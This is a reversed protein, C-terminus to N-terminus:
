RAGPALAVPLCARFSADSDSTCCDDLNKAYCFSRVHRLMYASDVTQLDAYDAFPYLMVLDVHRRYVCPAGVHKDAVLQSVSDSAAHHASTEQLLRLLTRLALLDTHAILLGCALCLADCSCVYPM